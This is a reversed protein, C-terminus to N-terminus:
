RIRKLGKHRIKVPQVSQTMDAKLPHWYPGNLNRCNEHPNRFPSRSVWCAIACEILGARRRVMAPTVGEQMALSWLAGCAEEKASATGQQLLECLPGV